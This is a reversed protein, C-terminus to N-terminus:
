TAASSPANLVTAPVALSEGAASVAALWLCPSGGGVNIAAVLTASRVGPITELVLQEGGVVTLDPHHPAVEPPSEVASRM